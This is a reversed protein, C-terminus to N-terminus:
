RRTPEPFRITVNASPPATLDVCVETRPWDQNLVATLRWPLPLAAGVRMQFRGSTDVQEGRRTSGATFTVYAGRAPSGDALLM